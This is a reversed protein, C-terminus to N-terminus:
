FVPIPKLFQPSLSGTLDRSVYPDRMETRMSSDVASENGSQLPVLAGPLSLGDGLSEACRGAPNCFCLAHLNFLVGPYM